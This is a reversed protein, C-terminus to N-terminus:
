VVTNDAAKIKEKIAYADAASAYQLCLEDVGHLYARCPNFEADRDSVNLCEIASALAQTCFSNNVDLRCGSIWNTLVILAPFEVM